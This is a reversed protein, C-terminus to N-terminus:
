NCCPYTIVNKILQSIFNSIWEWVEVTNGNFNPFPYTVELCIVVRPQSKFNYFKSVFTFIVLAFICFDPSNMTSLRNWSLYDDGTDRCWSLFANHWWLSQYHNPALCAGFWQGFRGYSHKSEFMIIQLQKNKKDHFRFHQGQWEPLHLHVSALDAGPCWSGCHKAWLSWWTLNGTLNSM